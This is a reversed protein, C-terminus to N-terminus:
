LAIEVVNRQFLPMTFKADKICELIIKAPNHGIAEHLGVYSTTLRPNIEVVYIKDIKADVIVDVGIYGSADPLMKAVKRALTEFRQWYAQMGNVTVGKLSFTDSDSSVHQENCSLLWGKGGRCLMSFSAAIGEQYPQVLYNLYRDNQKLWEMLKQLDDFTKIGDCGAGDEPKAVWRGTNLPQMSQAFSFDVDLLFDEAAIVPITYIKAEQLAEYTLSKSTGILTADYECGLFIVDAEYCMESLNMLIGGTEPAILWVLDVQTLMNKFADDFQNEVSVSNKVLPSAGLRSDHMTVIEYGDLEVLDRFLADRMLMGEKVLSEPLAEACLGGGTIFECVFLKLQPEIKPPEM